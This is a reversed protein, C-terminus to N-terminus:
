TQEVYVLTTEKHLVVVNFWIIHILTTMKNNNLM